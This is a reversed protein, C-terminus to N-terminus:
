EKYYFYLWMFKGFGNKIMFNEIKLILFEKKIKNVFHRSVVIIDEM